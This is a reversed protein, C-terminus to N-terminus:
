FGVAYHGLRLEHDSVVLSIRLYVLLGSDILLTAIAHRPM